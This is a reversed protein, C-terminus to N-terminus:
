KHAKLKIIFHIKNNEKKCEITGKHLDIISKVITLGLGTGNKNRSSKEKYYSTFINELDKDDINECSNSIDYILYDKDLITNIEIKKDNNCFKIANTITNEIAMQILVYNAYIKNDSCLKKKININKNNIEFKFKKLDDNIIKKIDVIEYDVDLNENEIKSLDLFKHVLNSLRESEEIMININEKSEKDKVESLLLQSYGSIITLPTKFEHSINAILQKRLREQKEKNEIEKKLRNNAIELKNISNELKISMSNIDELLDSIEDNSNITIKKDFKLNAIDNTVDRVEKIRKSIYFSIIYTAASLIILLILSSLFLISITTSANKKLSEISSTIIVYNNDIKGVLYLDYNGKNENRLTLIKSEYNKLNSLLNYNFNNFRLRNNFITYKINFQDDLISIKNGDSNAEYIINLIMEEENIYKKLNIYEENLSRKEVNIYIHNIFLKVILFSIILNIIIFLGITIFIKTRVSIRKKNNLM